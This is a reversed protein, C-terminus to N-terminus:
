GCLRAAGGPQPAGPSSGQHSRGRRCRQWSILATPSPRERTTVGRGPAPSLSPVKDELNSSNTFHKGFVNEQQQVEARSTQRISTPETGGEPVRSLLLLTDWARASGHAAAPQQSCHVPSRSMFLLKPCRQSPHAGNRAQTNSGKRSSLLAPYPM